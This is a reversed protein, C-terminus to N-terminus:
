IQIQQYQYHKHTFNDLYIPESVIKNYEEDSNDIEIIKHM